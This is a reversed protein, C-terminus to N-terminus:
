YDSKGECFIFTENVSINRYGENCQCKYSGMTNQCDHCLYPLDLCEDIDIYYQFYFISIIITHKIYNVRKFKFVLANKIHIELTDM